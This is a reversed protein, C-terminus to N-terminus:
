PARPLLFEWIRGAVDFGLKRYLEKPWDDRDAILFVLEHDRARAEALARTVTARALGRNRFRELTLVNEIQATRGDSYLECYAAIEADVRAAFFRTDITQPLGRKNDILQRAVDEAFVHPDLRWGESWAPVLEDADVEDVMATDVERDPPRSAVMIVDCESTWGLKKFGPELRAGTTDDYVEIKRHSLGAARFVADVEDALEAATVHGHTEGLLLYNRSWVDPLDPALLAVGHASPVKKGAMREAMWRIFDLCRELETM